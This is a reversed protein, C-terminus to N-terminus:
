RIRLVYMRQDLQRDACARALMRAADISLPGDIDGLDFHGDLCPVTEVSIPPADVNIFRRRELILAM